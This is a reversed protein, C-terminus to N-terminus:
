CPLRRSDSRFLMQHLTCSYTDLNTVERCHAVPPIYLSVDDLGQEALPPDWPREATQVWLGDFEDQRLGHRLVIVYQRKKAGDYAMSAM